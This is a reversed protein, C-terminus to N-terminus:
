EQITRVAGSNDGAETSRNRRSRSSTEAVAGRPEAEGRGSAPIPHGGGPNPVVPGSHLPGLLGLRGAGDQPRGRGDHLGCLWAGQQRRGSYSGRPGRPRADRLHPPRGLAGGPGGGCSFPRVATRHPRRNQELLRSATSGGNAQGRRAPISIEPPYFPMAGGTNCRLLLSSGM